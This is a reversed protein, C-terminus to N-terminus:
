PNLLISYIRPLVLSVMRKVRAREARRFTVHALPVLTWCDPNESRPGTIM